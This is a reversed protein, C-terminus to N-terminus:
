SGVGVGVGLDVGVGLFGCGSRLVWDYGWVPVLNLTDSLDEFTEVYREPRLRHHRPTRDAVTVELRFSIRRRLELLFELLKLWLGPFSM